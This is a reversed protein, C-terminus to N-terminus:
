GRRRLRVGIVAVAVVFVSLVIILTQSNTVWSWLTNTSGGASTDSSTTSPTTSHEGDPGTWGALMAMMYWFARAKQECSTFTTHGAEDGHFDPHEVPVSYTTDGDVYEYTAQEGNSWSDLDAFDFLVKGNQICYERIMQNRLWRNYGGEDTAQANGTMYIFTVDPNQSELYAMADLYEQVSEESYYDLQTCWSWLSISIEPNADLTNQTMQLGDPAQWYLDPTIYSEGDNGDYICLLGSSDPLYNDGIDVGLSSNSAMLRELGITIQGGHSTHAYHVRLDSKAESIWREPVIDLNVCTHDVIVAGGDDSLSSQQIPGSRASLTGAISIILVLLFWSLISTKNM